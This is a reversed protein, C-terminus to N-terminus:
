GQLYLSEYEDLLYNRQDLSEFVFLKEHQKHPSPITQILWTLTAAELEFGDECFHALDGPSSLIGTGVAKEWGDELLVWYEITWRSLNFIEKKQQETHARQHLEATREEIDAFFQQFMQPMHGFYEHFLDPLPTFNFDELPRIYNTVPFRKHALHQFWRDHSLYPDEADCLSRWTTHTLRQSLDIVNPIRQTDLDAIEIGRILHTSIKQKNQDILDMQRAYMRQRVLHNEPTFDPLQLSTM